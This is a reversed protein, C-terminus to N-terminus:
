ALIRVRVRPASVRRGLSVASVASKTYSSPNLRPSDLALSITSIIISALVFLDFAWHGILDHLFVRFRNKPGLFGLSFGSLEPHMDSRNQLWGMLYSQAAEYADKLGQTNSAPLSSSSKDPAPSPGGAAAAAAMNTEKVLNVSAALKAQLSSPQPTLAPPPLTGVEHHPSHHGGASADANGHGGGHGHGHGHGGEEGGGGEAFSEIIIAQAFAYPGWSHLRSRHPVPPPLLPAAGRPPLGALPFFLTKRVLFLNLIIYYGVFLAFLFFFCASWHVSRM